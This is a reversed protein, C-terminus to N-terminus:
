LLDSPRLGVRLVGRSTLAFLRVALTGAEPDGAAVPVAILAGTVADRIYIRRLSRFSYTDIVDIYPANSADIGSAFGVRRGDAAPYASNLPHLAAGGSPSGSAVVGQLRLASEFFYVQTGRAVGLSGDSNLGLGIVREAANGVLDATERTSGVLGAGTVKFLLIRGPDRVGEGFAITSHDRSVAVFTTDSLGISNADVGLDLRTDTAGAGRLATLANSVNSVLDTICAPDAATPSIRRPCVQIKGGVIPTVSLANVGIAKAQRPDAYLTFIEPGRNLQYTTDKAADYIRVTGDARTATPKTSYILQGSSVQGLFQPRDSYDIAVVTKATDGPVDYTVDYLTMDPTRIRRTEQLPGVPALWVVSINTGGSNAVYLTDGARGVALGWPQSGVSIPTGFATGTIPLVEVRNSTFNSTFVRAGDSVIDAFVDGTAAGVTLGRVVLFTSQAGPGGTGVAGNAGPVCALSQVSGPTVAAGCNGAGDKAFATVDLRVTVTDLGSLALASIPFKFTSAAAAVRQSFAVTTDHGASNRFSVLVTTGASDVRVEDSASVAVSFSDTPEERPQTTVTFSVRPPTRDVSTPSVTISVPRAQGVIRAGSTTTADLQAAGSASAPVALQITTDVSAAPIRLSITTDATFSGSARLRISSVLDFRDSASLRVPITTGASVAAGQAPSTIAVRPGGVNVAVTDAASQGSANVATVALQIGHEPTSDGTALLYRTLTTDLVAHGVATLDITKATFREVRTQTGLSPDGRLVFGEITVRRVGAGDRVRVQTFISDGIAVTASDTPLQIQVTPKQVNRGQINIRATDASTNGATDKAVAVVLVQTESLTDGSALLYRAVTTDTVAHGVGSLTVTKTVFRTVKQETGLNPNGRIAFGSIEVSALAKDDRVRVQTFLSDGVQVTANEAPFQLAVTPPTQDKSGGTNDPGTPNRFANTGDCAATAAGALLAALAAAHFRLRVSTM